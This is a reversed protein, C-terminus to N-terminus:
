LPLFLVSKAQLAKIVERTSSMSHKMEDLAASYEQPVSGDESPVTTVSM